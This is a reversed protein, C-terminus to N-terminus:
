HEKYISYLLNHCSNSNYNYVTDGTIFLLGESQMKILLKNLECIPFMLEKSILDIKCICKSATYRFVSFEDIPLILYSDVESYIYKLLSLTRDLKEEIFDPSYDYIDLEGRGCKLSAILSEIDHHLVYYLAIKSFHYYQKRAPIINSAGARNNRIYSRLIGFMSSDYSLVTYYSLFDCIGEEILETFLRHERTYFSIIHHVIEHSVMIEFMGKYLYDSKFYLGEAVENFLGLSHDVCMAKWKKESYPAPLTTVTFLELHKFDQPLEFIRRVTDTIESYVDKAEDSTYYDTETSLSEVTDLDEEIVIREFYPLHSMSCSVAAYFEELDAFRTSNTSLVRNIFSQKDM